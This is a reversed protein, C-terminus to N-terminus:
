RYMGMRGVSLFVRKVAPSSYSRRGKAVHVGLLLWASHLQQVLQLVLQGSQEGHLHVVVHKLVEEEDHFQVETFALLM